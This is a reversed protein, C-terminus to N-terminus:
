SDRGGSYRRNLNAGVAGFFTGIAVYGAFEILIVKNKHLISAITASPLYLLFRWILVVAVIMVLSLLLGVLWGKERSYYGAISASVVISIANVVVGMSQSLPRNLLHGLVSMTMPTMVVLILTGIALSIM